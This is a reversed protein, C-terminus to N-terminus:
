IPLEFSRMESNEVLRESSLDAFSNTLCRNFYRFTLGFRTLRSVSDKEVALIFVSEERSNFDIASSPPLKSNM